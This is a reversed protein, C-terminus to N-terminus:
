MFNFLLQTGAIGQLAEVPYWYNCKYKVDKKTKLQFGITKCIQKIEYIKGITIDMDGVLNWKTTHNGVRWSIVKKVVRVKQGVKFKEFWQM